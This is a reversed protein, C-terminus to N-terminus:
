AQRSFNALVKELNFKKEEEAIYSHFLIQWFVDGLEEAMELSGEREIADM